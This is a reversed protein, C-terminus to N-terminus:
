FRFKYNKNKCVKINNYGFFLVCVIVVVVVVGFFCVVGIGNFGIKWLNLKEGGYESMVDDNEKKVWLDVSGECDFFKVVDILFVFSMIRVLLDIKMDVFEIEKM